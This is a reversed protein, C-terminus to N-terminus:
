SERLENEFIALASGIGRPLSGFGLRIHEPMEFCDGPAVFVDKNALRECFSRSNRGDRFWPFALMGAEPVAWDLMDGVRAMFDRLEEFNSSAIENVRKLIAGRNRLAHLGLAELIPSGSLSLYSRARVIKTRREADMDIIWGMRLGPLSLAKSMDGIVIVNDKGAASANPEGRYVPHFVEDVLLPIGRSGLAESLADCDVDNLLAGTPNQPTNVVALLTRDDVSAAIERPDMRFNQDRRLQYHRARLTLAQAIGPFAPYGPMPLLVNGSPQALASLLLLFAESAGNTVVVWDPDVRHHAAIEARLDASGEPPAYSITLAELDPREDGLQLLEGVTWSPGTSGALNYRIAHRSELWDNLAFPKLDM